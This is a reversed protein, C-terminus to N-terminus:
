ISKMRATGAKTAMDLLDGLPMSPGHGPYATFEGPLNGLATISLKLDKANGGPLDTRGVGKPLVTDGTFINNDIVFCVGGPTHGPTTHVEITFGGISFSKSLEALDHTIEPVRLASGKELVMKFLNM